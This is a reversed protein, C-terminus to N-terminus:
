AANASVSYSRTPAPVSACRGRRATSGVARRGGSDHGVDPRGCGPPAHKAVPHASAQEHHRQQEHDDGSDEALEHERQVLVIVPTGTARVAVTSLARATRVTTAPAVSAKAPTANETASSSMEWAEVWYEGRTTWPSKRSGKVRRTIPMTM